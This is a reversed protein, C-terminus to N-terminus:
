RTYFRRLLGICKVANHLQVLKHPRSPRVIHPGRHTGFLVHTDNYHALHRWTVSPLLLLVSPCVSLCVSHCLAVCYAAGKQPPPRMIVRLTIASPGIELFILLIKLVLFEATASLDARRTRLDPLSVLCLLMGYAPNEYQAITVSDKLFSSLRSCSFTTVKFHPWLYHETTVNDRFDVTESINSKLFAMFKFVPNPTRLTIPFTVMNFSCMHSGLSMRYDSHSHKESTYLTSFTM